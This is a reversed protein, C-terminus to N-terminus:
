RSGQATRSSIQSIRLLDKDSAPPMEQRNSQWFGLNVSGKPTRALDQQGIGQPNALAIHKIGPSRQGLGAPMRTRSGQPVKPCTMCITQPTEALEEPLEKPFRRFGQSIKVLDEPFKKCTGPSTRTPIQSIRPLDPGLGPPMGPRCGRSIRLPLCALRRLTRLM